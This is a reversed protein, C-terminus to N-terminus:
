TNHPPDLYQPYPNIVGDVLLLSQLMEVRIETPITLFNPKTSASFAALQNEAHKTAATRYDTANFPPM